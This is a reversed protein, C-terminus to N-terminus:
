EFSRESVQQGARREPCGNEEEASRIIVDLAHQICGRVEITAAMWRRPGNLIDAFSQMQDTRSRDRCQCSQLSAGVRDYPSGICVELEDVGPDCGPQLGSGGQQWLDGHASLQRPWLCVPYRLFERFDQWGDGDPLPSITWMVEGMGEGEEFPAPACLYRCPGSGQLPGERHCLEGFGPCPLGSRGPRGDRDPVKSVALLPAPGYLPGGGEGASVAHLCPLDGGAAGKRGAGKAYRAAAKFRYSFCVMSPLGREATMKALIDAEEATLTVPKELCYPKGAEIAAKAVEFHANNSTSIDVVDVDPCNILQHYDAFCHDEAIGYAERAYAMREPKLDCVAVLELDPSKAIGPLHVGRSIGGIGVSGVRFVKREM